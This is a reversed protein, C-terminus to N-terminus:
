TPGSQLPKQKEVDNHQQATEVSAPCAMVPFTNRCGNIVVTQNMHKHFTDSPKFSSCQEDATKVLWVRGPHEKDNVLLMKQCNSDVTAKMLIVSPQKEFQNIPLRTKMKRTICESTAGM